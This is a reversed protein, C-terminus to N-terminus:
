PTQATPAGGVERRELDAPIVVRDRADAVLTASGTTDDYLVGFTLIRGDTLLVDFDPARTFDGSLADDVQGPDLDGASPSVDAVYYDAEVAEAIVDQAQVAADSRKDQARTEAVIVLIIGTLAGALLILVARSIRLRVRIVGFRELFHWVVPVLAALAFLSAAIVTLVAETTLDPTLADIRASAQASATRAAIHAIISADM